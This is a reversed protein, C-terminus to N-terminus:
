VCRMRCNARIRGPPYCMPCGYYLWKVHFFFTSSPWADSYMLFCASRRSHACRDVCRFGRILERTTVYAPCTRTLVVDHVLHVDRDVGQRVQVKHLLCEEDASKDRRLQPTCSGVQSSTARRSTCVLTCYERGSANAENITISM